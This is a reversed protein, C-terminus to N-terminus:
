STEETMTNYKKQPQMVTTATLVSKNLHTSRGWLRFMMYAAGDNLLM